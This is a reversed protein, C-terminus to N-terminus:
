KRANFSMWRHLHQCNKWQLKFLLINENVLKFIDEGRMMTQLDKCFLYENVFKGDKIFRIFALLQAKGSIDKSEDVQFSWLLSLEDGLAKFHECIQDKLDSSLDNIWRSITNKSLPYHKKVKKAADAGLMTEVVIALAPAIVSEADTHVIKRKALLQAVKYSAILGKEPLKLYNMLKKAQKNQQTVLNEFYEKPKDKLAPHKTELHRKLKSPVLAENSLAANCILCFPLQADEPGSCIFGFEIYDEKYKRKTGQKENLQKAVTGSKSLYKKM